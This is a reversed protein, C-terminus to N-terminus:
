LNVNVFHADWSQLDSAQSVLSCNSRVSRLVSIINPGKKVRVMTPM